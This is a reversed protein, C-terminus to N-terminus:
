NQPHSLFTIREGVIDNMSVKLDDTVDKTWSAVRGKVAIMTGKKCFHEVYTALGEWASVKIFDADYTGDQNKFPRQCALTFTLVKRGDELTQAEADRVVRGVLVVQNLM